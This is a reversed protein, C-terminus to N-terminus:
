HCHIYMLMTNFHLNCVISREGLVCHLGHICFCVPLIKKELRIEINWEKWTVRNKEAGCLVIQIQQYVNKCQIVIQFLSLYYPYLCKQSDLNKASIKFYNQTVQNKILIFWSKIKGITKIRNRYYDTFHLTVISM